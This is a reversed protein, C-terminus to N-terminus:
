NKNPSTELLRSIINKAELLRWLRPPWFNDHLVNAVFENFYFKRYSTHNTHSAPYSLVLLAGLSIICITTYIFLGFPPSNHVHSYKVKFTVKQCPLPWIIKFSSKTDESEELFTKLVTLCFFINKRKKSSDLSVLIQKLIIQGKPLVDLFRWLQSIKGSRKFSHTASSFTNSSIDIVKCM